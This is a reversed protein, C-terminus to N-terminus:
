NFLYVLVFILLTLFLALNLLAFDARAFIREKFTGIPRGDKLMWHKRRNRAISFQYSHTEPSVGAAIEEKWNCKDEKYKNTFGGGILNKKVIGRFNIVRSNSNVTFEFERTLARLFM